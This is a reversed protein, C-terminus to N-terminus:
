DKSPFTMKLGRQEDQSPWIGEFTSLYDIAVVKNILATKNVHVFHFIPSCQVMAFAQEFSTMDTTWTAQSIASSWHHQFNVEFVLKTTISWHFHTLQGVTLSSSKVLYWYQFRRSYHCLLSMDFSQLPQLEQYVMVAEIHHTTHGDAQSSSCLRTNLLSRHILTSSNNGFNICVLLLTLSRNFQHYKGEFTVAKAMFNCHLKRLQGIDIDILTFVRGLHSHSFSFFHLEDWHFPDSIFM